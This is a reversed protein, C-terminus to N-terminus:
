TVFWNSLVTDTMAVAVLVTIVVTPTPLEGMANPAKMMGGFGM